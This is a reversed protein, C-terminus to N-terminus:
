IAFDYTSWRQMPTVFKHLKSSTDSALSDRTGRSRRFVRGRIVGPRNSHSIKLLEHQPKQSQGRDAQFDDRAQRFTAHKSSAGAGGRVMELGFRLVAPRAVDCRSPLVYYHQHNQTKSCRKAYIMNKLLPSEFLEVHPAIADGLQRRTVSVVYRPGAAM